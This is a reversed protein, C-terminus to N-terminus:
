AARQQELFREVLGRVIVSMPYEHEAAWSKLEEYTAEPLRVPLMRLDVRAAAPPQETKPAFKSAVNRLHNRVTSESVSMDQAIAALESGDALRALVQVERDTLQPQGAGAWLHSGPRLPPLNTAMRTRVFAPKMLWGMLILQDAESLGKVLRLFLAAEEDENAM